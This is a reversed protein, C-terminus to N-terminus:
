ASVAGLQASTVANTALCFFRAAKGATLTVAAGNAGGDIKVNAAGPFVSLANAGSNFIEVSQGPVLAPLKVANGAAAVTSVLNIETTLATAGALTQTGSATIAATLSRTNIGTTSVSQFFGLARRIAGKSVYAPLAM